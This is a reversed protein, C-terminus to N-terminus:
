WCMPELCMDQGSYGLTITGGRIKFLEKNDLNSITMKNLEIKKSLKKTKM